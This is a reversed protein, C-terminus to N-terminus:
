INPLLREALCYKVFSVGVIKNPAKLPAIIVWYKLKSQKRIKNAIKSIITAIIIQNPM